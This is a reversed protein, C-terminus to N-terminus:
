AALDGPGRFADMANVLVAGYEGHTRVEVQTDPNALKKSDIVQGPDRSVDMQETSCSCRNHIPLLNGVKYRQTSALICLDCNKGGGLVRQYYKVGGRRYSADAQRVQAMQMDMVVLQGLRIGGLKVAETYPVGESLATYVTNAPRQYVELPDVGRGGTVMARDVPSPLVLTGSSISSVKAIYSSTLQAIQVQGAEVRPVILSVLRDIDATRYGGQATWATSSYALVKSRVVNMAARHGAILAEVTAM